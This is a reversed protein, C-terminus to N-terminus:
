TKKEKQAHDEAPGACLLSSLRRVLGSPSPLLRLLTVIGPMPDRWSFVMHLDAKLGCKTAAFLRAILQSLGIEGKLNRVIAAMMEGSTWVYRIGTRGEIIRDDVPQELALQMLIPSLELGAEEPVILNGAIRANIELFSVDGTDENVLFQACGIGTYQIASLLRATYDRLNELPVVTEGEVALGSGDPSDTRLIVAQVHRYMTGSNAAFYVNYRQGSFKRQLILGTERQPWVSTLYNLDADSSVTIAKQGDLRITSRESRVVLPFGLEKSQTQLKDRSHVISFPACPVDHELCLNMMLVKDLCKTVLDPDVMAIPALAELRARHKVFVTVFDESVPFLLTIDQELVYTEIAALFAEEDVLPPHDWVHSAFRSHEAGGDCGELGVIVRHGEAGFVRTLTLAPRYNGLLLITEASRAM